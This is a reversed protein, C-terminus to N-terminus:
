TTPKPATLTWRAATRHEGVIPTYFSAARGHDVRRYSERNTRHYYMVCVRM